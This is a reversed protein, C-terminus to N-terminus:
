PKNAPLTGSSQWVELRKIDKLSGSWMGKHGKDESDFTGEILVYNLKCRKIDPSNLSDRPMDIWLGNKEIAREYDEKHLYLGNGEFELNLYGIVRVHQNNYKEPNAILTILSTDEIAKRDQCASILIFLLFLNLYSLTIRKM